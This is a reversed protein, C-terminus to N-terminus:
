KNIEYKNSKKLNDIAWLPQLNSLANIISPHTNIDFSTVPIIHDIHWEGHNDWTMGNTFLSELHCKLDMPSYGLIEVTRMENKEFKIRKIVSKLLSRQIIKMKYVLDTKYRELHRSKRVVNYEKRKEKIREKNRIRYEAQYDSIKEVNNLQYERQKRKRDSTKSRITAYEIYYDKNNQYHTRRYEKKCEKCSNEKKVFLCLEKEVLCKICKKTEM